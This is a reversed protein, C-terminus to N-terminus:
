NEQPTYPVAYIAPIPDFTDQLLDTVKDVLLERVLLHKSYADM